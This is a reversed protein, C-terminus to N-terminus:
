LYSADWRTAKRRNGCVNCEIRGMADMANDVTDCNGCFWGYRKGGGEDRYATYFPAESGRVPEGYSVYLTEDDISVGEMARWDDVPGDATAAEFESELYVNETYTADGIEIEREGVREFGQAEYFENGVENDELVVSVIRDAGVDLLEERTRVLLRVGTGRGRHDPDVHIWHIRGTEPGEGLLESHSFGALDGDDTEAVLYRSTERDLDDALDEGYWQEVAAEIREEDLFETYSASLSNRAISRIRDVDATTAERIDM